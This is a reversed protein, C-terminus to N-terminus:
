RKENDRRAWEQRARERRALANAHRGCYLGDPGKGRPYQCQRFVWDGKPHVEEICRKPDEAKGNPNGAWVGYRRPATKDGEKTEGM